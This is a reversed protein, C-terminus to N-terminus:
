PRNGQVEIGTGMRIEELTEEAFDQREPTATMEVKKREVYQKLPNIYVTKMKQNIKIQYNNGKCWKCWKVEFPGKWQILLKYHDTPPLVM